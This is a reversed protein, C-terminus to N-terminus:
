QISSLSCSMASGSTAKRLLRLDTVLNFTRNEGDVRACNVFHIHKLDVGAAVL